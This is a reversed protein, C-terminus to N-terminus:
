ATPLEATARVRGTGDLLQLASRGALETTGSWMGRGGVVQMSGLGREVGQEPDVVLRYRGDPLMADLAVLLSVTPGDGVVDVSGVRVGDAAVMPVTEVAPAAVPAVPTRAQDVIRVTAVSLIVAAATAAAVLKVTRWRRRRESGLMADLVRAEFGPPPEAGPALLVLADAAESLEVTHARCGPCGDLHAVVDARAEGDLVGLALEPAADRVDACDLASVGM